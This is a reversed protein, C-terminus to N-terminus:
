SRAHAAREGHRFADCFADRFAWAGVVGGALGGLHASWSVCSAGPGGPHLACAYAAAIVVGVVSDVPRRDLFGRVVVYGFYGYVLGSAGVTGAGAREFFWVALGSAVAVLLTLGLFRATGRYAALLGFVFLPGSNGQIHTWSWHLFPAALIDPLRGTDGPVVAYDRALGYGSEWNVVQVSWVLVLLGGIALLAKRADGIM